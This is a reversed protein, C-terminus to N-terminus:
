VVNRNKIMDASIVLAIPALIAIATNDNLPIKDLGVFLAVLGTYAALAYYRLNHNTM